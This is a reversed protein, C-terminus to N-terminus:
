HNEGEPARAAGDAPDAGEPARGAIGDQYGRAYGARDAETTGLRFMDDDPSRVLRVAGAEHLGAVLHDLGRIVAVPRGAAKGKVLDAAGALEDAVAPATVELRHGFVDLGGRLDDLVLLGAAGIAVDTQGERWPRGFTDSLIVGLRIGFRERLRTALAQASADPDRPLLAIVGDPLNSADVGAAAMVFGQRNQSIRTRGKRAVVRVTEATIADERDPAAVLRGEAKSVVKSTIVLIDGDVLLGDLADGLVAALDDGPQIEGIGDVAFVSFGPLQGGAGSM